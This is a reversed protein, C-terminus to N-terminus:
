IRRRQRQLRRGRHAERNAPDRERHLRSGRASRKQRDAAELRRIEVMGGSRLTKIDEPELYDNLTGKDLAEILAHPNKDQLGNGFAVAIKRQQEKVLKEKIDDSVNLSGITTAVDGISQVFSGPNPSSVQSNAYATGQDDVDSVLKGVRQTAEWGYERTGVRDRLEAYRQQFAARIHPDKIQGLNDASLQDITKVITASHGAAGPQANNRADTAANEAATSAQALAVGASAAESDRDRERMQHIARDLTDGAQELGRGVAAGADEPSAGSYQPGESIGLQPQYVEAM